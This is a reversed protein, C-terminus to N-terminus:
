IHIIHNPCVYPKWFDQQHNTSISMYNSTEFLSDGKHIPIINANKLADPIIGEIISRNFLLALIDTLPPGALLNTLSAM